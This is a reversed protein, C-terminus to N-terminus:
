PDRRTGAMQQVQVMGDEVLVQRVERREVRDATQCRVENTLAVAHQRM